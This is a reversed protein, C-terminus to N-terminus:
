HYNRRENRYRVLKGASPILFNTVKNCRIEILLVGQLNPRGSPEAVCEWHQWLLAVRAGIEFGGLLACSLPM